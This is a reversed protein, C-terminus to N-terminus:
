QRTAIIANAIQSIKDAYTTGPYAWRGNLGELTPAIGHLHPPLTRYKLAKDVINKQQMTRDAPVTAYACLRGVHALSGEVWNPFSVGKHWRQTESNYAWKNVDEPVPPNVDTQGTVGIGAPNRRPRDSWWSSMNGTEHIM